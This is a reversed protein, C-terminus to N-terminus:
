HSEGEKKTKHTYNLVNTVFINLNIYGLHVFPTAKEVPSALHPHFGSIGRVKTRERL